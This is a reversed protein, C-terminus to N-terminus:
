LDLGKGLCKSSNKYDEPLGCVGSKEQKVMIFQNITETLSREKV